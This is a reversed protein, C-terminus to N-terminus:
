RRLHDLVWNAYYYTPKRLLGMEKGAGLDIAGRMNVVQIKILNNSQVGNPKILTNPKLTVKPSGQPM